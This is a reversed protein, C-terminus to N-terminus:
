VPIESLADQILREVERAVARDGQVREVDANYVAFVTSRKGIRV